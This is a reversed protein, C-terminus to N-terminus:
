ADGAQMLRTKPGRRKLIEGDTGVAVFRGAEIAVAQADPQTPDLTSVRGNYLILDADM